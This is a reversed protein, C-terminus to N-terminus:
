LRELNNRTRESDQLNGTNVTSAPEFMLVEAEENAVPRHEIGRPVVMCEGQHLVVTKDRLQMEFSGKIVMFFEDEEEHHHWEFPGIFKAIKVHQGNLEGIIRPNWHDSFSNFKEALNVKDLQSEKM